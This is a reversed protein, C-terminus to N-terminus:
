QGRGLLWMGEAVPVTPGPYNPAKGASPVRNAAAIVTIAASNSLGSSLNDSMVSLYVSAAAVVGQWCCLQRPCIHDFDARIHVRVTFHRALTRLGDHM